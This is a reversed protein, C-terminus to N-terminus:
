LSKPDKSSHLRSLLHCTKLVSCHPQWTTHSGHWGQWCLTVSTRLTQRRQRKQSLKKNREYYSHETRLSALLGTRLTRDSRTTLSPAGLLYSRTGLPKKNSSTLCKNSSAICKNRTAGIAGNTAIINRETRTRQYRGRRRHARVM